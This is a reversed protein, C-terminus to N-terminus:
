RVWSSHKVSFVPGASLPMVSWYVGQSDVCGSHWQIRYSGVPFGSVDLLCTSFGQARGSTKFCVFAEVEGDDSHCDRYRMVERTQKKMVYCQLKKNLAIMTDTKLAESPGANPRSVLLSTKCHLICYIKSFRSCIDPPVNKLQICLNLALHTGLSISIDNQKGSSASSCILVSGISPRVRFFHEPIRFPMRMWAAVVNLLLELRDKCVRLVSDKNHLSPNENQLGIIEKISSRCVTLLEESICGVKSIPFRPLLHLSSGCVQQEKLLSMLNMCTEPDTHWLRGALDQVLVHRYDGSHETSDAIPNIFETCFALLSCSFALASIGKFSKSDMDIFTSAVLDFEEALRTLRSSIGVLSSRIGKVKQFIPNDKCSVCTDLLKLVDVLVHLVKVRLALFWRQFCLTQIGISIAELMKDSASIGVCTDVLTEVYGSSITDRDGNDVVYPQQLLVQINKESHTFQVLFKLWQSCFDSQVRTELRHFIFNAVYPVGECLAWKGARYAYWNDGGVLMNEACEHILEECKSKLSDGCGWNVSSYLLLAYFTHISCDFLGNGCVFSVLHKLKFVVKDTADGAEDLIELFTVLFRYIYFMFKRVSLKNEEIGANVVNHVATAIGPMNHSNVRNEIVFHLKDLIFCGLESHNEVMVLLLKLIRGLDKEIESGETNGSELSILQTLQDSLGSVVGSLFTVSNGDFMVEPRGKLKNSICILVDFALLRESLISSRTADEVSRLLKMFENIDTVPMNPLGYAIMKLLIQLIDCRLASPLNSEDLMRFLAQLLFASIPVLWPAREGIYRMCRLVTARMHLSTNQALFSSLLDVQESVLIGSKFSLKTLSILMAVLIDEESFKRVLEAGAKYSNTALLASSEIKSFARAGAVILAPSTKPSTM